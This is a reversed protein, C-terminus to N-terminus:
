REYKGGMRGDESPIDQKRIILQISYEVSMFNCKGYTKRVEASKM